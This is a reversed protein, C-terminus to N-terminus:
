FELASLVQVLAMCTEGGLGPLAFVSVGGGRGSARNFSLLQQITLGQSIAVDKMDIKKKRKPTGM